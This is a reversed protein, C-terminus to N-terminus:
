ARGALVGTVGGIHVVAAAYDGLAVADPHLGDGDAGSDPDSNVRLSFFLACRRILSRPIWPIVAGQCPVKKGNCRGVLAAGGGSGCAGPCGFLTPRIRVLGRGRWACWSIRFARAFVCVDGMRFRFGHNGFAAPPFVGARPSDWHGSKRYKRVNDIAQM